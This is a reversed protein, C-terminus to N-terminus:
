GNRLLCLSLAEEDSSTTKPIGLSPVSCSSYHICTDRLHQTQCSYSALNMKSISFSKVFVKGGINAEVTRIGYKIQSTSARFCRTVATYETSSFRRNADAADGEVWLYADLNEANMGVADICYRDGVTLYQKEYQIGIVGGLQM